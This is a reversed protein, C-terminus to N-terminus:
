KAGGLPAGGFTQASFASGVRGAREAQTSAAATSFEAARIQRMAAKRSQGALRDIYLTGDLHDCEHQFCRALMGTGEVTVPEGAATYGSVRAWARRPTTFGLGPVSLCGESGPEQEADSVELVPNVVHGSAGDVEYTFVRLGVGVQPAALGAGSVDRMTEMMDEVLRALEPGFDTVDEAPSRLVPDGVIRIQRVSM